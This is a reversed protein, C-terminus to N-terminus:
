PKGALHVGGIKSSNAANGVCNENLDRAIGLIAGYSTFDKSGVAADGVLFVWMNDQLFATPALWIACDGLTGKM